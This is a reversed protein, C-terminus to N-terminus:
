QVFYIYTVRKNIPPPTISVYEELLLEQIKSFVWVEFEPSLWAAFKLALQEHMWTGSYKGGHIINVIKEFRSNDSEVLTSIYNKTQQNRLFDNTNKGFLAAMETANIM